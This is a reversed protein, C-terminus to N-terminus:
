FQNPDKFMWKISEWMKVFVPDNVWYIFNPNKDIELMKQINEEDGDTYCIPITSWPNLVNDNEILVYGQLGSNLKCNYKFKFYSERTSLSRKYKDEINM